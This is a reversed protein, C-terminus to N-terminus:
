LLVREQRDFSVRPICARPPPLLLRHNQYVAEPERRCRRGLHFSFSPDRLGCYFPLRGCDKEFRSGVGSCGVPFGSVRPPLGYRDTMQIWGWGRHQSRVSRRLQVHASGYLLPHAHGVIGSGLGLAVFSTQGDRKEIRAPTSWEHVSAVTPPHGKPNPFVHKYEESRMINLIVNSFRESHTENYTVLGIRTSPNCGILYPPLRQSLIISGGTQPPKKILIRQGKQYPLKQLRDCLKDQWPECRIVSTKEVFNKFHGSSKRWEIRNKELLLAELEQKESYSLSDYM